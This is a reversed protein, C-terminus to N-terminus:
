KVINLKTIPWIRFIAKGVIQKEKILGKVRSDASVDRNDGLVLYMNDPIKGNCDDGNIACIDELSFDETRDNTFKKNVSEGNVYLIDDKYEINDGPLGIARKIIYEGSKDKIVVVDFRKIDDFRYSIKSLLLVEGDVLTDYMSDGRVIVPTIVFSRLLIILIVIIIYSGWEKFFNYLKVM